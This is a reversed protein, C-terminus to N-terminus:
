LAPSALARHPEPPYGLAAVAARVAAVYEPTVKKGKLVRSVTATSVGARGAVETITAM